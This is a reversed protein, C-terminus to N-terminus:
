TLRNEFLGNESEGKKHKEERGGKRGGGRNRLIHLQWVRESCLEFIQQLPQQLSVYGLPEATLASPVVCVGLVCVCM